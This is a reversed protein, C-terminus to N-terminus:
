LRVCQMWSMQRCTDSMCDRLYCHTDMCFEYIVVFLKICSTYALGSSLSLGCRRWARVTWECVSLSVSGCGCRLAVDATHVFGVCNDCTSRQASAVGICRYGTHVLKYSAALHPYPQALTCHSYVTRYIVSLQAICHDTAPHSYFLALSSM